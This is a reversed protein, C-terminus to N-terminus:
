YNDEIQTALISHLIGWLEGQNELGTNVIVSNLMYNISNTDVPGEYSQATSGLRGANHAIYTDLEFQSMGLEIEAGCFRQLVRILLSRRTAQITSEFQRYEEGELARRFAVILPFVTEVKTYDEYLLDQLKLVLTGVSDDEVVLNQSRLYDVANSTAIRKVENLHDTIEQETPM